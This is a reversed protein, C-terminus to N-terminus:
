ESLSSKVVKVVHPRFAYWRAAIHNHPINLVLSPPHTRLNSHFPLSADARRGAPVGVLGIELRFFVRQFPYLM